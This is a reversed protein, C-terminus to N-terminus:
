SPPPLPPGPGLLKYVMFPGSLNEWNYIENNGVITMKTQLRPAPGLPYPWESVERVVGVPSPAMWFPCVGSGLSTYLRRRHRRVFHTAHTKSPSFETHRTGRTAPLAKGTTSSETHRLSRAGEPWGRKPPPPPAGHAMVWVYAPQEKPHPSWRRHGVSAEPLDNSAPAWYQWLLGSCPRGVGALSRCGAHGM